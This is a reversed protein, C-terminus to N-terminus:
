VPSVGKMHASQGCFNLVRFVYLLCKFVLCPLSRITTNEEVSREEEEDTIDVDSENMDHSINELKSKIETVMKYVEKDPTRRYPKTRIKAFEEVTLIKIGSATLLKGHRTKLHTVSSFLKTKSLV